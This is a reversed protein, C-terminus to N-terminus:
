RVEWIVTYTAGDAATSYGAIQGRDNIAYAQSQRGGLTGLDFMQGEHWVFAHQDGNPLSSEGVVMGRNNVGRAVSLGGLTGLDTMAGNEWLFARFPGSAQGPVTASFGVVQGGDNVDLARAYTGGLTGLDVPVGDTWLVARVGLPSSSLGAAQGSNNVANALSTAGGALPPLIQAEGQRWLAAIQTSVECTASANRIGFWGAAFGSNSVDDAESGDFGSPLPLSQIVGKKVDYLAAVPCTASGQKTFGAVKTNSLRGPWFAPALEVLDSGDLFGFPTLVRGNNAIDRGRNFSGLITVSVTANELSFAPEVDFVVETPGEAPSCGAVLVLVALLSVIRGRTMTKLVGTPHLTSSESRSLPKM